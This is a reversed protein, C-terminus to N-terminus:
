QPSTPEGEPTKEPSSLLPSSLLPSSEKPEAEMEEKFQDGGQAYSGESASALGPRLAPNKPNWCLWLFYKKRGDSTKRFEYVEKL